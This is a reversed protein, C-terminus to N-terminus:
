ANLIEKIDFGQEKCIAKINKEMTNIRSKFAHMPIMIRVSVVIHKAGKAAAANVASAVAYIGLKKSQGYVVATEVSKM